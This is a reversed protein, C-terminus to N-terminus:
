RVIGILEDLLENITNCLRASATYGMQYKVLKLMEEDISVGSIADRQNQLHTMIITQHDDYTKANAVQHGIQGVMSTVYSNLTSTKSDLLLEKQIAAIKSANEGDGTVSLSAAIRNVDSKIANSIKLTAAANNVDSIEFFDTATNQYADYGNKHLDNVSEALAAAFQNLYTLYQPVTKEQLELLAGLKGKQVASNLAQDTVGPSYIDLTGAASLQATLNHGMYSQLLPQGNSVYVNITGDANEFYNIDILASLGSLAANRKDLLDNNNGRDEGASVIRLNLDSIEGIKDNIQSVVAKISDNFEGKLDTLNQQYYVITNILNESASYLASREIKGGANQSLSEWAAWFDNLVENLGGGNTDDIIVEVNQLGKLMTDSYGSNQQQTIVQADVYSDYIRTIRKINVGVQASNAQVDVAGVSKFEARQQSYGPTNVNAINAGTVDIAMQHAILSDRATFLLSSISM